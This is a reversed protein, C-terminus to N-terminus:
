GCFHALFCDAGVRGLEESRTMRELSRHRVRASLQRKVSPQDEMNEVVYKSHAALREKCDDLMQQTNAPANKCCTLIRKVLHFRSAKNLVVMDFPTTTTGNEIYGRVHFRAPNPRNHVLQHLTTPYSHYAFVIDTTKTFLADFKDDPMGHSHIHPSYLRMLNLVNLFRIKLAPAHERLYAVAALAEMTMVDGCSVVVVDPEEGEVDTSAWAWRSIGAERHAIAEDITLYQLQPQKDIVIVNVRNQTNFCHSATALLTNADVPFYARTVCGRKTLVADVFGPGQHSFGNHDNRWSFFFSHLSSFPLFFCFSDVSARCPHHLAL